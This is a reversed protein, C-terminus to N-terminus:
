ALQSWAGREFSSRYWDNEVSKTIPRFLTLLRICVKRRKDSM